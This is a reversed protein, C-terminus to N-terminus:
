QNNNFSNRLRMKTCFADYFAKLDEFDVFHIELERIASNKLSKLAMNHESDEETKFNTWFKTTHTELTALYIAFLTCYIPVSLFAEKNAQKYNDCPDGISRYFRMYPKMKGENKIAYEEAPCCFCEYVFKELKNSHENNLKEKYIEVVSSTFRLTDYPERNCLKEAEDKEIMAYVEKM